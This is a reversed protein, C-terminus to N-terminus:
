RAALVKRGGVDEPKLFDDMTMSRFQDAGSNDTHFFHSAERARSALRADQQLMRVQEATFTRLSLDNYDDKMISTHKVKAEKGAGQAQDLATSHNRHRRRAPLSEKTSPLHPDHKPDQTNLSHSLHLFEADPKVETKGAPKVGRDTKDRGAYQHVSESTYGQPVYGVVFHTGKRDKAAERGVEEKQRRRELATLGHMFAGSFNNKNESGRTLGPYPLAVDTALYDYPAAKASFAPLALYNLPHKNYDRHATSKTREEAHRSPDLSTRVHGAYKRGQNNERPHKAPRPPAMFDHSKLSRAASSFEPDSQLLNGADKTTERVPPARAAVASAAFDKSYISSPGDTDLGLKFHAATQDTRSHDADSFVRPVTVDRAYSVLANPLETAGGELHFTVDSRVSKASKMSKALLEAPPRTRPGFDNVTTSERNGLANNYDGSRFVNPQRDLAKMGQMVDGGAGRSGGPGLSTMVESYARQQESLSSKEDNGFKYGSSRQRSHKPDLPLTMVATNLKPYAPATVARSQPMFTHNYESEGLSRDAAYQPAMDPWNVTKDEAQVSPKTVPKQEFDDKTTSLRYAARPVAAGSDNGLRFHEKLQTAPGITHSRNLGLGPFDRSQSTLWVDGKLTAPTFNYEGSGLVSSAQLKKALQDAHKKSDRESGYLKQKRTQGM